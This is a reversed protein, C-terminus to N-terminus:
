LVKWIFKGLYDAYTCPVLSVQAADDVYDFILHVRPQEWGNYVTHKSANNLEFCRGVATPIQALRKIQLQISTLM